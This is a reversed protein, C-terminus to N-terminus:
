RKLAEHVTEGLEDKGWPKMLYRFILEKNFGELMIESEMFGTLLMCVKEPHNQKVEKIFDLGNMVPMKLDSIVVHIDPNSALLKLGERASEATIVNFENMFTLQLLELNIVEDDVYLIKPLGM